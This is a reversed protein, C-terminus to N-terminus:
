NGGDGAPAAGAAIQRVGRPPPQAALWAAVQRAMADPAQTVADLGLDYPLDHFRGDAVDSRAMGRFRGDSRERERAELVDLDWRLGLIWADYEQFVGAVWQRVDPWWLNREVVLNVGADLYGRVALAAGRTVRTEMEITVFDTRGSPNWLGFHDAEFFLYPDPLVGLM